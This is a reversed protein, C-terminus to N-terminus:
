QPLSGMTLALATELLTGQGLAVDLPIVDIEDDALMESEVSADHEDGQLALFLARAKDRFLRRDSKSLTGADVVVSTTSSTSSKVNEMSERNSDGCLWSYGTHCQINANASVAIALDHAVQTTAFSGSIVVALPKSPDPGNSWAFSQLYDIIKAILQQNPADIQAFTTSFRATNEVQFDFCRRPGTSNYNRELYDMLKIAPNEVPDIKARVREIWQPPEVLDFQLGAQHLYPILDKTWHLTKPNTMNFFVPGPGASLISDAIEVMSKAVLDVPLWRLYEDISPLIGLTIATQLMLPVADTSNWVGQRTDGAVQGIRFVRVPVGAQEQANQCIHEAVLKSQAYGTPQTASFDDPLTEPVVALRTRLVTGVSSAFLFQAPQTGPARLCLDILHRVGAICDKEFSRLGWNFNVTWACHYVKSVQTAIESHRQTDLGLMPQSLDSALAIIKRRQKLSLTHYVRRERLSAIVRAAANQHTQARVLCYVKSVSPSRILTALLHAGLSGTAGTLVVSSASSSVTSRDKPGEFHGYKAILIKMQQEATDSEATETGLQLSRIFQTLARISPNDFVINLELRQGNTYINKVLVARLQSAQLSDMGLSFFDADDTLAEADASLGLVARATDRILSQVEQESGIVKMTSASVSDNYSEDIEKEFHRYFAKRIVTGKDTRPYETGPPLLIVMDRSIKAYTPLVQQSEEIIPSLKDLIVERSLGNSAASLIIVIGFHPKGVGFVVAEAVLEDRRVAGEIPLPNAKEGNELVIVDDIRGSYKWADMTPHKEFLDRTAYAGDPRNKAVLSPWGPGVVLEFVGDDQDEFRLHKKAVESPRLYTWALDGDPRWSTMLPGCEGMGYVTVLKVGRATLADGLEDPCPAGGFNIFKFRKLFMVGEESESLIKLAYPVTTFIEVERGEVSNILNQKTLPLAANFIYIKKGSMFARFVSSIGHTHFVPLTLFVRQGLYEIDRGYNRLAARHTIYIPKPMGTSGSSHFIWAVQSTESDLDLDPTMLTDSSADLSSVPHGYHEHNAMEEAVLEQFEEQLEIAKQKFAPNYVLQTSGATTMLHAYAPKTLRPSMLLVSHGLKTLALMTVIYDLESVGMLAVVSAKQSSDARPPFAHRYRQAVRHAFVSLQRLNYDVYLTGSSPYSIIHNDPIVKAQLRVLEDITRPLTDGTSLGMSGVLGTTSAHQIIEGM